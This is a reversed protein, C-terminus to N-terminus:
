RRSTSCRNSVVVFEQGGFQGPQVAFDGGGVGFPTAEDVEVLAPEDFEGFHLAAV